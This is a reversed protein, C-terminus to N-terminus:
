WLDRFYLRIIELKCYIFILGLSILYNKWHRLCSIRKKWRWIKMFFIEKVRQKFLMYLLFLYGKPERIKSWIPGVQLNQLFVSIQNGGGFIIIGNSWPVDQIGSNQVDSDKFALLAFQWSSDELSFILLWEYFYDVPFDNFMSFM